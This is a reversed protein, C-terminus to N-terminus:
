PPTHRPVHGHRLASASNNVCDREGSHWYPTKNLAASISLPQPATTHMKARQQRNHEAKKKQKTTTKFSLRMFPELLLHCYFRRNKFGKPYDRLLFSVANVVAVLNNVQSYIFQCHNLLFNAMGMEFRM